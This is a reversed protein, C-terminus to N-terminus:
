HNISDVAKGSFSCENVGIPFRGEKITITACNPNERGTKGQSLAYGSTYVLDSVVGQTSRNIGKKAPTINTLSTM